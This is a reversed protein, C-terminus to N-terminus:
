FRTDKKGVVMILDPGSNQKFDGFFALTWVCVCVCVCVCASPRQKLTYSCVRPALAAGELMKLSFLSLNNAQLLLVSFFYNQHKCISLELFNKPLTGFNKTKKKTPVERVPM